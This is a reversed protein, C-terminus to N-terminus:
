FYDMPNLYGSFAAVPIPVTAGSKCTYNKFQVATSEYVSLHLHPGTVYGTAGSYGILQGTKVIDGANVSVLSLHAYLTTLGNNHQILVWKGYQCMSAVKTNVAKVTGDLVSYVPTGISAGFDVGNHGQGNYAATRSFETNGFYQTIRINSLPWSFVKTGKAPLISPNITFKLQSELDYLEKEFQDVAAQKEALLKQYASEKNKTQALLQAKAAATDEAIKKKDGLESKYGLYSQKEINKQVTKNELDVKLAKLQNINEATKLNFQDIAEVDNWLGSFSDNSLAIAVLDNTDQENLIRMAENIAAVHADIEQQRESIQSNLEAINQTATDANIQAIKIETDLKKKTVTLETISTNLTKKQAGLSDLNKQLVPIEQKLEQLQLATSSIKNQIDSVTQARVFSGVAIFGIVVLILVLFQYSPSRM